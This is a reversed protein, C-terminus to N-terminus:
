ASTQEPIGTRLGIRGVVTAVRIKSLVDSKGQVVFDLSDLLVTKMEFESEADTQTWIKMFDFAVESM